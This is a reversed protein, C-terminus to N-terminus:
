VALKKFNKPGLKTATLDAGVFMSQASKPPSFLPTEVAKAAWKQTGILYHRIVGCCFAQKKGRHCLSFEPNNPFNQTGPLQAWSSSNATFMEFDVGWIKKLLPEFAVFKSKLTNRNL